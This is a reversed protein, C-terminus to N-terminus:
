LSGQEHRRRLHVDRLGNQFSDHLGDETVRLFESTLVM